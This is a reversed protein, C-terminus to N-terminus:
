PILGQELAAAIARENTAARLRWRAFQMYNKVTNAAIGLEDATERYSLGRSAASLVDLQRPTLLPRSPAFIQLVSM